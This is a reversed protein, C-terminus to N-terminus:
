KGAALGEFIRAHALTWDGTAFREVARKRAQRALAVRDSLVRLIAEAAAEPTPPRLEDYDETGIMGRGAEEGVLEPTGGTASYVVPVGCAMAEVVLRPCPDQVKLHM